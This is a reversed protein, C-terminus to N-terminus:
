THQESCPPTQPAPVLQRRFTVANLQRGRVVQWFSHGDVSSEGKERVSDSPEKHQSM